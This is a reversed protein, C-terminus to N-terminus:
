MAYRSGWREGLTRAEPQRFKEPSTAAIADLIIINGRRERKIVARGVRATRRVAERSADPQMKLESAGGAAVGVAVAGARIAMLRPSM